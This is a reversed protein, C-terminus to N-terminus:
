KIGKKKLKFFLEKKSKVYICFLKSANKKQGLLCNIKKNKLWYNISALNLQSMNKGLKAKPKDSYCM